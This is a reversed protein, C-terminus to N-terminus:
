DIIKYPKLKGSKEYALDTVASINIDMGFNDYFYKKIKRKNIENKKGPSIYNFFLKDLKRNYVIQFQRINNEEKTLKEIDIAYYIVKGNRLECFDATRGEIKEFYSSSKGCRCNKESIKVRDALNYRILPFDFSHLNTILLDGYGNADPKDVECIVTDVDIHVNGYPCSFGINAETAWYQNVVPVNFTKQILQKQHNFLTEAHLIVLEPHHMSINNANARSVLDYIASPYGYLIKPRFRNYMQIIQDFTDSQIINTPIAKKNRLLHYVRTKFGQRGGGIKMERSERQLGYLYLLKLHSTRKKLLMEKSVLIDLPIGSSGSTSQIKYPKRINTYFSLGDKQLDYKSIVPFEKLDANQFGAYRKSQAAANRLAKFAKNQYDMIDERGWSDMDISCKLEQKLNFGTIGDILWNSLKFFSTV